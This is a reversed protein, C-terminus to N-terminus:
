VGNVLEGRDRLDVAFILLKKGEWEIDVLQRDEYTSSTVLVIGGSPITVPIRHGDLSLIALTPTNLRYREGPMPYLRYRKLLACIRQGQGPPAKAATSPATAIYLSGRPM